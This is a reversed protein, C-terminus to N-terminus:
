PRLDLAIDLVTVSHTLAGVALYDVGTEAVERAADLTLGGSAELRPGAASPARGGAADGGVAMNDLLLSTAGAEIAEVAQEVTDVEVQVPM